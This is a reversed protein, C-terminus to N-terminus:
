RAPRRGLVSKSGMYLVRTKRKQQAEGWRLIVVLLTAMAFCGEKSMELWLHAGADVDADSYAAREGSVTWRLGLEDSLVDDDLPAILPARREPPQSSARLLKNDSAAVAASTTNDAKCKPRAGCVSVCHKM